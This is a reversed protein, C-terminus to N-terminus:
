TKFHLLVNIAGLSRDVEAPWDIRVGARPHFLWDRQEVGM